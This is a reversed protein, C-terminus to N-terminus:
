SALNASERLAQKAQIVFYQNGGLAKAGKKAKTALSSLKQRHSFLGPEVTLVGLSLTMQPYFKTEGDRGQAFIGGHARDEEHYFNGILLSFEHLIKECIPQFDNQTIVVFDDGGIHGVFDQNETIVSKLVQAIMTIVQDGQEFSYFDNYPKFNDVDVYIVQFSVKKELYDQLTTQIPVNGPLGSLPNSYKASEVKLDTITELLQMLTATGLYKGQRNIIFASSHMEQHRTIERSVKVLLDDAEFMKPHKDMFHVVTKKLHLDRGYQSALLSLLENRWIIGVPTNEDVVPLFEISSHQLFFESAQKVKAQIDITPHPSCIVGITEKQSFSQTQEQPWQHDLNLSPIPSPRKLLFGQAMDVGIKQLAQLEKQTEVGEAIVQSGSRSALAQISEMFRFKDANIDIGNIFHKDIKVYEPKLESWLKLGNYGAGLDDLAVEFGMERYHNVAHLFPEIDDIPHSETIEIVIQHLALGHDTLFQLTAGPTHELSLLSSPSVNIFLKAQNNHIASTNVFNQIAIKRALMDMELLCGAKEASYFLNLPANYKSNEPGRTLAEFAFTSQTKLDVIPQFHTTLGENAFIAYLEQGSPTKQLRDHLPKSLKELDFM